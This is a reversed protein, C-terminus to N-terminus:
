ALWYQIRENLGKVSEESFLLLLDCSLAPSEIRYHVEIALTRRWRASNASVLEEVDVHRGLVVPHAVSFDVNLQGAIGSLCASILVNSMDMLLETEGERDLPGDVKMLRAIDPFSADGIVLLAEGAIGCGIFGQCVGSVRGTETMAGVAMSLEGPDLYNVMPVPLVVFVGLLRALLDAAQGMAVNVVERYADFENVAFTAREPAPTPVAATATAASPAEAKLTLFGQDALLEALVDADVPKKIFEIAGLGLVRTRAEPQIDGSVVIVPVDIEEQSIAQLTEYGDMVPMTLDLFLLAPVEDRMAKLAEAGNEAYRIDVNWSAPLARALQKRAMGSDDCILISFSM